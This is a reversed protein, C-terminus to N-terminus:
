PEFLVYNGDYDNIKVSSATGSFTFNYNPTIPTINPLFSHRTGVYTINANSVSLGTAVFTTLAGGDATSGSIYFDSNEIILNGGNSNIYVPRQINQMDKFESNYMRGGFTLGLVGGCKVNEMLGTFVNRPSHFVYGTDTFPAYIDRFTGSMTGNLGTKFPPFIQRGFLSIDSFTGIINGTAQFCSLQGRVVINDFYGNISGNASIVTDAGISLNRTFRLNEYIGSINGGVIFLTIGSSIYFNKVNATIPHSNVAYLLDAVLGDGRVNSFTGSIPGLSSINRTLSDGKTFTLNDIECNLNILSYFLNGDAYDIKINKYKGYIEDCQFVDTCNKIYINEFNGGIVSIPNFYNFNSTYNYIFINKFNGSLQSGGFSHGTSNHIRIDEFNGIASSTWMFQGVSFLELNRFNGRTTTVDASMFTSQFMRDVFGKSYLNKVDVLISTNGKDNKTCVFENINNNLTINSFTGYIGGGSEAESNPYVIISLFENKFEVNDMVMNLISGSFCTPGYAGYSQIVMNQFTGTLQDEAFFGGFSEIESDKIDIHVNRGCRFVENESDRIILNDIKCDIDYFGFGGSSPPQYFSYTPSQILVNSFTGRIEFGELTYFVYGNYLIRINEFIGNINNTAVFQNGGECVINRFEGYLNLVSCGSFTDYQGNGSLILNNFRLYASSPCSFNTRQFFESYPPSQLHLNELGYDLGQFAITQNAESSCKIVVSRPNTSIGKIDVYSVSVDISISVDYTGPMLLVTVRNDVDAGIQTALNCADMVASLLRTGNTLPDSTSEVVITNNSTDKKITDNALPASATVWGLQGDKYQIIQRDGATVGQISLNGILDIEFYKM